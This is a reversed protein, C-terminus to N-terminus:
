VARLVLFERMGEVAKEISCIEVNLPMWSACWHAESYEGYAWAIDADTAIFGQRRLETRLQAVEEPYNIPEKPRVLQKLLWPPVTQYM